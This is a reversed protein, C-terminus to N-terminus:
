LGIDLRQRAAEAAMVAPVFGLVPSASDLGVVAVSAVGNQCLAFALFDELEARAALCEPM